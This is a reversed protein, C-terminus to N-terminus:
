DYQITGKLDEFDLEDKVNQKYEDPTTFMDEIVEPNMLQGKKYELVKDITNNDKYYYWKGHRVDKVFEGKVLTDATESYIYTGGQRFGDTYAEEKKLEGEPYYEKKVGQELDREMYVESLLKGNPYFLRWEGFRQGNIYSSEEVLVGGAGYTRWEGSKKQDIYEGEAMKEGTQYYHIAKSKSPNKSDYNLTSQLNGDEFYYHFEGVAKDDEFQGQYRLKGNEHFARWPGFKEGKENEQNWAKNNQALLMSSSVVFLFLFVSKVLSKKM